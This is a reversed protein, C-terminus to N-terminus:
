KIAERLRDRCRRFVAEDGWQRALDDMMQVVCAVEDHIAKLRERLTEEAEPTEDPMEFLGMEEPWQIYTWDM